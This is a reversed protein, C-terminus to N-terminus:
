RSDGTGLMRALAQKLDGALALSTTCGWSFGIRFLQLHDVFSEVQKTSVAEDFLIWSDRVDSQREFLVTSGRYTPVALSNFGGPAAQTPQVIRSRWHM